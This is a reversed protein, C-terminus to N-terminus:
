GHDQSIYSLMAQALGSPQDFLIRHSVKPLTVSQIKASRKELEMAISAFKIDKEGCVWLIQSGKQAIFDRFDEQRVLSWQQLSQALMSRDYSAELRHPETLSDKFVPQTKWENMLEAWPTKLFKESWQQDSKEREAKEKDRLLGPNTSIFIANDYLESAVKLAHLALRGGLSYGVLIRPGEPFRQLVKNNFNKAWATFDNRPDLGPTNLYDVSWWEFQDALSSAMFYNRILDWDSPLGLFGHLCIIKIKNGIPNESRVKELNFGM